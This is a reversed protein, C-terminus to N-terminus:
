SKGSAVYDGMGDREGNRGNRDGMGVEGEVCGEGIYPGLGIVGEDDGTPPRRFVDTQVLIDQFDDAVEGLRVLREGGDAVAGLEQRRCANELPLATRRVRGHPRVHRAGAPLEHVDTDVLGVHIPVQHGGRGPRCM